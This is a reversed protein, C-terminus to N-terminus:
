RDTNKPQSKRKGQKFLKCFLSPKKKPKPEARDLESFQKLLDVTARTDFSGTVLLKNDKEFQKIAEKTAPGEFGDVVINAGTMRLLKQLWMIRTDPAEPIPDPNTGLHGSFNAAPLGHGHAWAEVNFNPCTKTWEHPEVVGDRDGDPSLYRHGTIVADPYRAVAEILMELLLAQDQKSPGSGDFGGDWAIGVSITNFGAVHAGVADWGRGKMRKGRATWANYGIDKFGRAQHQARLTKETLNGHSATCHVVILTTRKRNAM